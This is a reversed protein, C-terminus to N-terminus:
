TVALWLSRRQYYKPVIHGTSIIDGCLQYKALWIAMTPTSCTRASIYKHYAYDYVKVTHWEGSSPPGCLIYKITTLRRVYQRKCPCVVLGMAALGILSEFFFFFFSFLSFPFRSFSAFGNESKRDLDGSMNYPRCVNVNPTTLGFRRRRKIGVNRIRNRYWTTRPGKMIM